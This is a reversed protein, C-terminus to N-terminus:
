RIVFKPVGTKGSPHAQATVLCPLECTHGGGTLTVIQITYFPSTRFHNLTSLQHNLDDISTKHFPAPPNGNSTPVNRRGSRNCPHAAAPFVDHGDVRFWANEPVAPGIVRGGPIYPLYEVPYLFDDIQLYRKKSLMLGTPLLPYYNRISVPLYYRLPLRLAFDSTLLEASSVFKM